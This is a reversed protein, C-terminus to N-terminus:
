VWVLRLLERRWSEWFPRKPLAIEDWIAEYLSSSAGLRALLGSTAEFVAEMAKDEWADTPAPPALTPLLRERALLFAGMATREASAEVKLAITWCSVPMGM